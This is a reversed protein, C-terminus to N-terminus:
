LFLDFVSKQLLEKEFLHLLLKYKIHHLYTGAFDLCSISYLDNSDRGEYNKMNGNESRSFQPMIVDQLDIGTYSCVLRISV